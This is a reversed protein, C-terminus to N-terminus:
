STLALETQDSNGQILLSHLYMRRRDVAKNVCMVLAPYEGVIIAQGKARTIGTYLLKKSLLVNFKKFMPIIVKSFESGQSKHITIAYALSLEKLNEMKYSVDKELYKVIVTKDIIQDIVGIDGNFADLDYNNKTHIVRDGERFLNDGFKLEERSTSPPNIKDQIELNLNQVGVDSKKMPTLVQVETDKGLKSYIDCIYEVPNELDKSSVYACEEFLVEEPDSKKIVVENQTNLAHAFKVIESGESQRFIKTLRSSSINHWNLLVRFVDGIGIPELQDVDGILIVKTGTKLASFLYYFLDLSIMSCEDLIIINADIPNLKNYEFKNGRRGLTRHITKSDVAVVEKIRQAARGTPAGVTMDCKPLKRLTDIVIKTITSKGTGPGGTLIHFNNDLCKNVAEFQEPSLEFGKEKYEKITKSLAKSYDFINKPENLRLIEESLKVELDFYRKFYFVPKEDIERYRLSNRDNSQNRVLNRLTNVIDAKNVIRLLKSCELTIEELYMFCHGTNSCFQELCHIIAAEIRRPDSPKMNIESSDQAYKDAKIFGVGDVKTIMIYPNKKIEEVVDFGNMSEYIRRCMDSTIGSSGLLANLSALKRKELWETKMEPISAANIGKVEALREINNDLINYSDDGFLKYIEKARSPGIGKLVGSGLFGVISEKTDAQLQSYKKIDFQKGYKGTDKWEGQINLSMGEYADPIIGVAKIEKKNEGILVLSTWFNSPSQYLIKKIKCTLIKM